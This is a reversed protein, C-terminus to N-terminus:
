PHALARGTLAARLVAYTQQWPVPSTVRDGRRGAVVMALFSDIAGQYGFPDDSQAPLRVRVPGHVTELEVGYSETDAAGVVDVSGVIGDAWQVVILATDESRVGTHHRVRALASVVELDPGLLAVLLELGHIGITVVAGGGVAPDDQWATSGRLWRGVDHRAVAHATLIEERHLQAALRRVPAAFRLVSSSMVRHAVPRVVADVAALQELTAAAPKNIFLPPGGDALAAVTGAVEPPRVTVVAGHVEAAALAQVSTHVRAHPFRRLFEGLREPQPEWVNLVADPHRRLLSTADMYPHSTALGAFAISPPGIGASATGGM